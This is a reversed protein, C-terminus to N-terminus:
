NMVRARDLDDERRSIWPPSKEAPRPNRRVSIANLSGTTIERLVRLMCRVGIVFDAVAATLHALISPSLAHTCAM